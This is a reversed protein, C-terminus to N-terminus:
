GGLANVLRDAGAESPKQIRVAIGLEVNEGVVLPEVKLYRRALTRLNFLRSPCWMTSIICDDLGGLKLGQM